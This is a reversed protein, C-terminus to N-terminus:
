VVITSVHDPLATTSMDRTLMRFKRWKSEVEPYSTQAVDIHAEMAIAFECFQTMFVQIDNCYMETDRMVVQLQFFHEGFKHKVAAYGKDEISDTLGVQQKLKETRRGFAKPFGIRVDSEKRKREKSNMQELVDARKKMDNIRMSIGKMERCAADLATYDPHNEPTTALLQDLLLPYKLIRQVPKVLLSDLNWAATLDRAYAQCEKLWILVKENKQLAQLKANAADHNKLYESYVKEMNQMHHGFSEGIFTKRDRDDDSLEPGNISSQDDTTTGSHTTNSSIRNSKWRRAKALVYVSKSAHKLADLFNTSFAVIQDSNGFLTKMDETSIIVNSTGKYIDDVVKMDQCYSHETDVLEKIIHTRKTLRKQEDALSAIRDVSETSTPGDLSTERSFSNVGSSVSPRLSPPLSPPPRSAGNTPPPLPSGGDSQRDINNAPPTDKSYFGPSPPKREASPDATPPQNSRSPPLPPAKQPLPPPPMGPMTPTDASQPPEVNIELGLGEIPPLQPRFTSGNAAERSSKPDPLEQLQKQLSVWDKAPPLPKEDSVIPSDLAQYDYGGLSPSMNWDEPRNLSARAPRDVGDDPESLHFSSRFTSVSEERKHEAPQIIKEDMDDRVEKEAVPQPVMLSNPQLNTKLKLAESAVASPETEQQPQPNTQATREKALQQLYLQTVKKPDWGGQRALVPSHNYFLQQQVDQIIEPSTLNPNHYHDLVRNITSYTDSDMTTRTTDPSAFSTTSWLRPPQGDTSNTSVSLHAPQEPQSQSPGKSSSHEDIREMPMDREDRSRNSSTFSTMSWRHDPDESSTSEKLKSGYHEDKFPANALIPTEGLMIQISERDDRESAADMTLHSHMGNPSPSNSRQLGMIQNLIAQDRSERRSSEPSDDQPEDDFFTDVSDSTDATVASSPELEEALASGAREVRRRPFRDFTGLTPSDEISLDLVSRDMFQGTDITLERDPKQPDVLTDESAAESSVMQDHREHSSEQLAGRGSQTVDPEISKTPPDSAFKDLMMSARRREREEHQREREGVKRTYSRQIAQRRAAVDIDVGELDKPKKSRPEKRRTPSSGSFRDVAKARSASTSASSVPMRPRSSRLPPSKKPTPASIYANLHPSKASQRTTTM